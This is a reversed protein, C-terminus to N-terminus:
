RGTDKGEKNQQGIKYKFYPAIRAMRFENNIYLVVKRMSTAMDVFKM